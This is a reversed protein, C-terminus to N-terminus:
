RILEFGAWLSPQDPYQTKMEERAKIFAIEISDGEVLKTYFLTMLEMTELDPVEWLSVILHGVGAMFLARQLGFVGENGRIDGLGTECASLVVLQTADLDINSLEYATLIGDEAGAPPSGKAWAQNAGSFVLGSRLLPHDALSFLQQTRLDLLDRHFNEDGQPPFSFGHSAVHIISPARGSLAKFSEETAEQGTLTLSYIRRRSLLHSIQEAEARTGPLYTWESGRFNRSAIENGAEALMEYEYNGALRALTAAETNYDIGGYLIGTEGSFSSNAALVNRTSALNQLIFKDSLVGGEPLPIAAFSFRHLLGTPSFHITKVGELLPQLPEILLNFLRDNGPAYLQDPHQSTFPELEAGVTLFVMRPYEYEPRLVLGCYFISDTPRLLDYYRFSLFEIAAEGHGLAERIQLFSVPDTDMGPFSHGDTESLEALRRKIKKQLGDYAAEMEAPDEVRQDVPLAYLAEIEERLDKQKHSLDNLLSDQSQALIQQVKKASQLLLGKLFLQNDYAQGALSPHEEAQGLYLRHYFDFYRSINLEIYSELERESWHLLNRDVQTLLGANGKLAMDVSAEMQGDGELYLALNHLNALYDPHHSGQHLTYHDLSKRSWDISEKFHGTKAYVMSLNGMLNSYERLQDLGSEEMLRIAELYNKEALEMKDQYWYNTALTGLGIAYDVEKYGGRPLTAQSRLLYEESREYEEQLMLAIGLSSLGSGYAPNNTKGARELRELGEAARKTAREINYMKLDIGALTILTSGIEEDSEPQTRMLGELYESLNDEALHYEGVQSYISGLSSIISLYIANNEGLPKLLVKLREHMMILKQWDLSGLYYELLKGLIEMEGELTGPANLELLESYLPEAEKHYGLDWFQNAFTLIVQQYEKSDTGYHERSFPVAGLYSQVAQEKLGANWYLDGLQVQLSIKEEVARDGHTLYLVALAELYPIAEQYEKENNYKQFIHNLVAAYGGEYPNPLTQYIDLAKGYYNKAADANHFDHYLLGLYFYMYGSRQTNGIEELIHTAALYFKETNEVDKQADLYNDGIRELCISTSLSINLNIDLAQNLYDLVRQAPWHGEFQTVDGAQVWYTLPQSDKYYMANNIAGSADYAVRMGDKTDQGKLTTPLFLLFLIFPILIGKM